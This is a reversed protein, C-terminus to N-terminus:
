PLRSIILNRNWVPEILLSVHWTKGKDEFINRNWVPEILLFGVVLDADRIRILKSELSTRNFPAM